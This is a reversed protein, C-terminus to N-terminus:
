SALGVKTWSEGSDDSKWFAPVADGSLAYFTNGGPAGVWAWGNTPMPPPSGPSHWSKGGDGSVQMSGHTDPSGGSVALLEQASAAAFSRPGSNVLLLAGSSVPSWTRGQNTSNFVAMGISGAAGGGAAACFAFLGATPDPAAIVDQESPSGCTSDLQGLPELGSATIRQPAFGKAPASKWRPTVYPQKADFVVQLDAVEGGTAASGVETTAGGDGIGARAVHRAGVCAANACGDASTVIVQSGDTEVDTVFRGVHDYPRFTRGGDTTYQVDGGFVWGVRANAFRVQSLVNSAQIAGEGTSRTPLASSAFSSVLHWTRGDDTSGILVPCRGASGCSSSGLVFMNGGGVNTASLATFSKPVPTQAAVPTSATGTAGPTKEGSAIPRQTTLATPGTNTAPTLPTTSNHLVAGYTVGGIVLGAAAVGVAYGLFRSRRQARAQRVISQWHVDNGDQSVIQDRERNFFDEVPDHDFESM